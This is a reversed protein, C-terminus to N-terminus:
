FFSFPFLSFFFFFPFFSFLFLFFPYINGPLTEISELHKKIFISGKLACLSVAQSTGNRSQMVRKEKTCILTEDFLYCELEEWSGGDAGVSM